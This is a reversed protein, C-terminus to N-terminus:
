GRRGERERERAKFVCVFFVFFFRKELAGEGGGEEEGQFLWFWWAEERVPLNPDGSRRTM